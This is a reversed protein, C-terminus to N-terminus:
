VLIKLEESTYKNLYNLTSKDFNNLDNGTLNLEVLEDLGEFAMKEIIKIATYYGPYSLDLIKLKKLSEFLRDKIIEFMNGGLYLIELNRLNKFVDPELKEILNQRLNLEKLNVLDDFLNHPLSDLHNEKLDLIELNFLGHFIDKPLFKIETHSIQLTKLNQFNRFVLPEIADLKASAIEVKELCDMNTFADNKIEKFDFGLNFDYFSIRLSNKVWDTETKTFREIM